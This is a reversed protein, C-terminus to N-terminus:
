KFYGSVDVVAHTPAPSDNLIGLTGSGDTALRAVAGVARTRGARFSVVAATGPLLDGPFTQFEGAATPSVATVNVAVAKAGSPVGCGSTLVPLVRVGFAGLAPGGKPGVAGRTDLVRCPTVPFFASASPPAGAAISLLVFANFEPGTPPPTRGGIPGAVSLGSMPLSLTGGSYVGSLVPPGFFNQANRVEFLSGAVLVASVDVNVKPLLGWNFVVINARGPEYANSRVFVKTGTPRAGHHYTNAPFSAPNVVGSIDRVFDNGTMTLNTISGIFYAAFGGDGNSFWNNLIMFSNAGANYGVNSGGVTCSGGSPALYVINSLIQGNNAITDGGFLLNRSCGFVSPSGNSFIANGTVEINDLFAVASGYIQFGEAYNDFVLNDAIRKNGTINQAYIGNGHSRDTAGDWGNNFILNGYIEADQHSEFSGIGDTGDHLIMNILKIGVHPADQAIGVCSGRNLDSPASGNQSSRRDPDSSFIELGQYWTYQGSITLTPQIPGPGGDLLAREGPYPRVRISALPSGTLLSRFRGRYTGGRLWVSDGPHVAAPASFATALSWPNGLTGTGAATSSTGNTAVYFDAAPAHTAAALVGLACWWRISRPVM